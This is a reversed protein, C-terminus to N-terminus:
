DIPPPNAKLDSLVKQAADRAARAADLHDQAWKVRAIGDMSQIEQQEDPTLKPPVYFPNKFGLVNKEWRQVPPGTEDLTAEAEAVRRKYDSARAERDELWKVPDVPKEAPKANLDPPAAPPPVAADASPSAADAPVPSPSAAATQRSPSPSPSPATSPEPSAPTEAVSAPAAAPPPAVPKEKSRCGATSALGVALAIMTLLASRRSM